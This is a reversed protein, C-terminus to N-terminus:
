SGWDASYVAWGPRNFPLRTQRGGDADMVWLDFGRDRPRETEAGERAFLIKTGDPSWGLPFSKGDSTLQRNDSGGAAVVHVNEWTEETEPNLTVHRYVIWRGDPSWSADGHREYQGGPVLLEVNRGRADMTVIGGSWRSAVVRSGDPSWRPDLVYRGAALQFPRPAEGSVPVSRHSDDGRKVILRSGDRSWGQLYSWFPTLQRLNRGQADSVFVASDPDQHDVGLSMAIAKRDPSWLANYLGYPRDEEGYEGWKRLLRAGAGDARVVYLDGTATVSDSPGWILVIDPYASLESAPIEDNGDRLALWAAAAAAVAVVAILSVLALRSRMSM